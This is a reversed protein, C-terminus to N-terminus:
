RRLPYIEVVATCHKQLVSAKLHGMECHKKEKEKPPTMQSQTRKGNLPM